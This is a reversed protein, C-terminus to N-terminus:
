YELDAKYENYNGAKDYVKFVMSNDILPFVIVNTEKDVSLPKVENGNKDFAYIKNYDIGSLKDDIKLGIESGSLAHIEVVPGDSDVNNVSVVKVDKEQQANEVQVMYDGNKDVTIAYNNQGIYKAVYKEGSADTAYIQNIHNQDKVAIRIESTQSMQSSAVNNIDLIKPKPSYTLVGLGAVISVIAMSAVVSSFNFFGKKPTAIVAASSFVISSKSAGLNSDALVAKLIDRSVNEDMPNGESVSNLTKRILRGTTM